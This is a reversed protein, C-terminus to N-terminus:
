LDLRIGLLEPHLEGFTKPLETQFQMGLFRAQQLEARERGVVPSRTPLPLRLREVKEAERMDTPLLPAVSSERDHPLRNALPQLRFQALHFGLEPSAHVAGNWLDALPQARHNAYRYLIVSHGRVTRRQGREAELHAPEPPTRKRPAALRARDGPLAQPSQNASPQRGGRDTMRIRQTAHADNGSALAPHPREARGSGHLPHHAVTM